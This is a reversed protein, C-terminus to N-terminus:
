VVGSCVEEGDLPIEKKYRQKEWVRHGAREMLVGGVPFRPCGSSSKSSGLLSPAGDGEWLFMEVSAREM